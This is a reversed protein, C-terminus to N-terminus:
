LVGLAEFQHRLQRRADGPMVKSQRRSGPEDTRGFRWWLTRTDLDVIVSRRKEIPGRLFLSATNATTFTTHLATHHLSYCSGVTEHRVVYPQCMNLDVPTERDPHARDIFGVLREDPLAYVEPLPRYWTHCYTGALIYSSFSFRHDHPRDFHDDTAAHLRIRFGRDVADYLVVYDLLQHREALAQLAPSAEVRDFLTRLAEKDAALASVIERSRHAAGEFDRWDLTISDLYDIM